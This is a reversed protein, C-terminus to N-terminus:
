SGDTTLDGTLRRSQQVKHGILLRAYQSKVADGILRSLDSICFSSWTNIPRPTNLLVDCVRTLREVPSTASLYCCSPLYM